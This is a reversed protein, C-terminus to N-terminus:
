RCCSEFFEVGHKFSLESLGVFISTLILSLYIFPFWMLKWVLIIPNRNLESTIEKYLKKLWNKM